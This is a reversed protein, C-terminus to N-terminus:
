VALRSMLDRLHATANCIQDGHADLTQGLPSRVPQPTQGSAANKANDEYEPMLVPGLQAHLTGIASHLDKMCGDIREILQDIQPQSKPLEVSGIATGGVFRAQQSINSM